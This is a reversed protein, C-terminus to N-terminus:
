LAGASGRARHMLPVPFPPSSPTPFVSRSSPLSSHSITPHIPHPHLTLTPLFRFPFLHITRFTSPPRLQSIQQAFYQRFFILPISKQQQVTNESARRPQGSRTNRQTDAVRACYQYTHRHSTVAAVAARSTRDPRVLVSGAFACVARATLMPTLAVPVNPPPDCTSRCHRFSPTAAADLSPPGV